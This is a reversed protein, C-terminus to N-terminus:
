NQEVNFFSRVGRVFNQFSKSLNNELSLHPAIARSGSLKQYSPILKRLEQEANTLSDPERFKRTRQRRAVGQKHFAKEVAALDGLFWSELHPCVIRVLSDPRGAQACLDILFQKVVRCEASDQDRVIVFRTNPTGWARLKRPISKELDHKGEHPVLQYTAEDHLIRPLVVKLVEGLSPEELMFVLHMM